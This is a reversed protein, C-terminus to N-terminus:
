GVWIDQDSRSKPWAPARVTRQKLVPAEWMVMAERIAEILTRRDFPHTLFAPDIMPADLPNSSKLTVTGRSQPNM